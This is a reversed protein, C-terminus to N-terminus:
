HLQWDLASTASGGIAQESDAFVGPPFRRGSHDGPAKGTRYDGTWVLAILTGSEEPERYEEDDCDHYTDRAETIDESRPYGVLLFPPYVGLNNEGGYARLSSGCM